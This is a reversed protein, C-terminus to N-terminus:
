IQINSPYNKFYFPSPRLAAGRIRKTEYLHLYLWDLAKSGFDAYRLIKKAGDSTVLLAHTRLPRAPFVWQQMAGSITKEYPKKKNVFEFTSQYDLWFVDFGDPKHNLYRAKNWDFGCDSELILYVGPRNQIYDLITFHSFLLALEGLKLRCPRKRFFDMQTKWFASFVLPNPLTLLDSIDRDSEHEKNYIIWTNNVPITFQAAELFDMSLFIV